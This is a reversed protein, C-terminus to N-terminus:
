GVPLGEPLFSLVLEDLGLLPTMTVIVHGSTTLLRLLVESYISIGPTEDLWAFEIAAGQFSERGEQYSKIMVSSTGGAVHKVYITEVAEAVGAKATRHVIRDGPIFGTGVASLPGLLKEQVVERATKNSDSAAWAKVPRQFRKGTWWHPYDGTLHLTTEYAGADSKGVRNGAMFMRENYERGAGFFQMHKPYLERRFPGDDPFYTQIRNTARRAKEQRIRELDLL